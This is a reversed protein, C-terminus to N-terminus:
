DNDQYWLFRLFNRHEKNVEFCYFMQEIDAAVAVLEKRFRMLVGLLNNTLDPGTLLVSNLSVGQYAASSDFVGRIKGPKKSNYVGFIPLYWCEEGDLLDPAVEAHGNLLIKGMFETMHEKKEHNKQLSTHFFKARRLAEYKNNPLRQRPSRFPLPATWKGSTTKKNFGNDMISLCERDEVSFSSKDDNPEQVFVPDYLSCVREDLVFRNSCPQFLSPRGNNLIQTKNVNVQDRAHVKGICVEGIVVWGLGLKQAFPAGPPGLVQDNVHHAEVLDILLLIEAKDDIDPICGAIPSLHPHCNADHPSYIEERNNPIDSCEILTPLDYSVSGDVSQIVCNSARRGHTVHTGACSNLTYEFEQSDIDFLTFLEPKVLSRNSQEDLMAYCKVVNSPNESSFVNVLVSKACSKGHGNGCIQTCKNHVTDNTGEREGGNQQPPSSSAVHMAGTHNSSCRDSCKVLIRCEKAQHRNSDCCKFCIRNNKLFQKRESISKSKFARCKNLSHNRRHLPCFEEMSKRDTVDTKRANVPKRFDSTGNATIKQRDCSPLSQDNKIKAQDHIFTAFLSFPPFHVNHTEKYSNAKSAWREQINLPLKALIPSIGVASDFYATVKDETNTNPLTQLNLDKVSVDVMSENDRHSMRELADVEAQAAAAAGVSDGRIWCHLIIDEEPRGEQRVSQNENPHQKAVCKKKPKGSTPM